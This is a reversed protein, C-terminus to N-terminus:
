TKSFLSNLRWNFFLTSSIVTFSSIPMLIAAALPNLYGTMAMISGIVNYFLSFGLNFHVLRMVKSSADFLQKIPRLGERTMFVECAKLSMEMSGKVAIGVHALGLAVADNAGDGIMVAEPHAKIVEAKKEPTIESYFEQIGLKLAIGAVIKENDGSLIKPEIGQNRIFTMFEQADARLTDQLFYTKALKNDLFLGLIKSEGEASHGKVEVKQGRYIGEVGSGINIKKNELINEKTIFHPYQRELSRVISKAIPHANNYELQYTIFDAEDDQLLDFIEGGILEFHGYTLTGTKDIFVEKAKSLKEITHENKIIIGNKSLKGLSLTLALPTTLGLACPCTIIILAFARNFSEFWDNTMFYSLGLTFVALGLVALVFKKSIRDTLNLIDPKGNWGSEVMSLIKGLRSEQFNNQVELYIEDELNVSGSSMEESERILVPLSEGTLLSMEVYAEKSLLKADVPLLENAKLFIKDGNELFRAHVSERKGDVLEREVVSSHFIQAIESSDLAKHYSKRLLYRASLLLFTLTCLTDFYNHDGDKLINIFSMISGLIIALAIPIDISLTRSKIAGWATKYFPIASFFIVPLSLALTYWNFQKLLDGEAGAYTSIALLMINGAAAFAIAIRILHMRDEKIREKTSDEKALLPHPRYGFDNVKKVIPSFHSDKEITLTLISKSMDLKSFKIEPHISPLKELIWLCALCHIGELYFKMTKTQEEFVAYEKEFEDHDLYSFSNGGEQVPGSKDVADKKLEYYKALGCAHIIEFATRCGLCCFISTKDEKELPYPTLILNSCHDCSIENVM